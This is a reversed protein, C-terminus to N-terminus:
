KPEYFKLVQNRYFRVSHEQNQIIERMQKNEKQLIENHQKLEEVRRLIAKEETEQEKKESCLSM